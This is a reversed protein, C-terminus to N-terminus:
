KGELLKLAKRVKAQYAERNKKVAALKALSKSKGGKKGLESLYKKIENKSM